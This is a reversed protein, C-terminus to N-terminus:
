SRKEKWYRKVDSTLYTTIVIHTTLTEEFVVRLLKDKGQIRHRRHAVQRGGYGEVIQEPTNLAGEGM